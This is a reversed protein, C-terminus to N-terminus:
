RSRRKTPRGYAASRERAEPPPAHLPNLWKLGPFKAFDSDASCVTLGHEVALAALHADPVLNGHAGSERLLRGLVSRHSGTPEPIWVLPHDLWEEVQAWADSIPLYNRAVRPNSILRVYSLLVQWPLGIRDNGLFRSELWERASRYQPADANNAYLLLNSDVLIM